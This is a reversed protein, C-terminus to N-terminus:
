GIPEGGSGHVLGPMPTAQPDHRWEAIAALLVRGERPLDSAVLEASIAGIDHIAGAACDDPCGSFAVKFTRGLLQTASHRLLFRSTAQAYPLVPFPEDRCVGSFPCSTVNGVSNGCVERTHLGTRALIRLVAPVEELRVFHYQVDQRTTIHALGHGHNEAVEALTELQDPPLV